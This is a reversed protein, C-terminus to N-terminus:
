YSLMTALGGAVKSWPRLVNDCPSSKSVVGAANQALLSIGGTMIALGVGTAQKVVGTKNIGMRPNALTGTIQVLGAPNVGTTLGTKEKPTINLSLTEPGLNIRGDLTVDLRDTQVGITQNIRVLGNQVPLYAVGCQLQTTDTTKRLPNIANLVSVFFDGGANLLSSSATAAGVSIQAEGNANAALGHATKGQSKLHFAMQAPGGSLQNGKGMQAMIQGLTFGTAFGRAQVAPLNGHVGNIQADAEVQGAGMRFSLPALSLADDASATLTAKVQQLQVGDPLTLAGVAAQVQGQWVPWQDFGIPADSFVGGKSATGVAGASPSKVLPRLDLVDAKINLDAVPGRKPDIHIQGWLRTFQKDLGVNVDLSFDTPASLGGNIFRQWSDTHGKLTLPLDNWRMQGDLQTQQGASKIDFRKILLTDVVAGASTKYNVDVQNLHVEALAFSFGAPADANSAPANTPAMVWNGSAKKGLPASQLVLQMQDLSVSQIEIRKNFLPAWALSFAVQKITLMEPDAAWSANSLTVQEAVVALKPFLKISVPGKIELDRGTNAKVQQSVVAVLRTSDITFIAYAVLLLAAVVLLAIGGGIKQRTSLNM